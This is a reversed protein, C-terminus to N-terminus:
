AGLQSRLAVLVGSPYANERDEQTSPLDVKILGGADSQKVFELAYEPYKKPAKEARGYSVYARITNKITRSDFSPLAEVIAEVPTPGASVLAAIEQIAEPPSDAKQSQERLHRKQNEEADRLSREVAKASDLHYQLLKRLDSILSDYPTADIPKRPM